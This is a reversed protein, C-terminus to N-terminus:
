DADEKFKVNSFIEQKKHEQEDEMGKLGFERLENILLYLTCWGMPIKQHLTPLLSPDDAIKRIQRLVNYNEFQSKKVSIRIVSHQLRLTAHQHHQNTKDKRDPAKRTTTGKSYVEIHKQISAHVDTGISELEDSNKILDTKTIILLQVLANLARMLLLTM